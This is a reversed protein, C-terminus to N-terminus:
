KKLQRYSWTVTKIEDSSVSIVWEIFNSWSNTIEWKLYYNVNDILIESVGINCEDINWWHWFNFNYSVKSDWIFTDFWQYEICEETVPFLSNVQLYNSSNTIIKTNEWILKYVWFVSITIIFTAIIVEILSFWSYKNQM